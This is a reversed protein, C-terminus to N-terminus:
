ANNFKEIFASDPDLWEYYKGNIKPYSRRKDYGNIEISNYEEKSIVILRGLEIFIQRLNNIASRNSHEVELDFIQILAEPITYELDSNVYYDLESKIYKNAKNKITKKLDIITANKYKNEKM